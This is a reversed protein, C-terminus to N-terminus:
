RGPSAACRSPAWRGPFLGGGAAAGCWPTAQGQYDPRLGRERLQQAGVIWDTGPVGKVALLMPVGRSIVTEGIGADGHLAADFLWNVGPPVDGKLVRDKEPHLIMLRSKDYVHINGSKGIRTNRIGGLANSSM